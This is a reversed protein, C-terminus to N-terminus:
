LPSVREHIQYWCCRLNRPRIMSEQKLKIHKKRTCTLQVSYLASEQDHTVAILSAAWSDVTGSYMYMIHLSSVSSPSQLVAALLKDLEMTLWVSTSMLRM